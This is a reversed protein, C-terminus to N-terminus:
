VRRMTASFLIGPRRLFRWIVARAKKGRRTRLLAVDSRALSHVCVRYVRLCHLRRNFRHDKKKKKEKTLWQTAHFTAHNLGRNTLIHLPLSGRSGKMWTPVVVFVDFMGWHRAVAICVGVKGLRVKHHQVCASMWWSTQSLAKCSLDSCVTCHILSTPYSISRKVTRSKEFAKKPEQTLVHPWAQMTQARSGKPLAAIRSALDISFNHFIQISHDRKPKKFTLGQSKGEIEFATDSSTLPSSAIQPIQKFHQTM